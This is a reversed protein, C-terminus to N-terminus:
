AASATPSSHTSASRARPESAPLGHAHGRQEALASREIPVRRLTWHRRPRALDGPLGTPAHARRGNRRGHARLRADAHRRYGARLALVAPPSPPAHPRRRARFPRVRRQGRHAARRGASQLDSLHRYASSRPVDPVRMPSTRSASRVASQHRSTRRGSPSGLHLAPRHPAPSGRRARAAGVDHPTPPTGHRRVAASHKWTSTM